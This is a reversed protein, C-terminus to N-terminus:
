KIGARKSKNKSELEIIRAEQKRILDCAKEIAHTLTKDQYKSALTKLESTITDIQGKRIKWKEDRDFSMELLYRLYQYDSETACEIVAFPEEKEKWVCEKEDYYLQFEKM